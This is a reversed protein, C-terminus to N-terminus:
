RREVRFSISLGFSSVLGKFRIKSVVDIVSLLVLNRIERYYLDSKIIVGGFCCFNRREVRVESFM